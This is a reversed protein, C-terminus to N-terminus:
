MKTECTTECRAKSLVKLDPPTTEDAASSVRSRARMKEKIADLALKRSDGNEEGKDGEGEDTKAHKSEMRQRIKEKLQESSGKEEAAATGKEKGPASAETEDATSHKRDMRQKMMEKLKSTRAAADDLVTGEGGESSKSSDETQSQGDEAKREKRVQMMKRIVDPSASLRREKKQPVSLEAMELGGELLFLFLSSRLKKRMHADNQLKEKIKKQFPLPSSNL